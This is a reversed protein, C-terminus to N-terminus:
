YILGLSGTLYLSNDLKGSFTGLEPSKFKLESGLMAGAELNLYVHRGLWVKGGIGSRSDFLRAAVESNSPGIGKIHFKNGSVWAGVYAEYTPSFSYTIQLETPATLNIHLRGETSLLRIGFVPYIDIYRFTQDRRLGLILQAGPNLRYVMLGQGFIEIDSLELSGEFNSYVGLSGDATLLFDDTLFSGIGGRLSGSYLTEKGVSITQGGISKFDLQKSEYGAGSSVFTNASRPVPIDFQAFYDQRDYSGSGSKENQDPTFRYGINLNSYEPSYLRFFSSHRREFLRVEPDKAYLITPFLCSTTLFFAFVAQKRSDFIITSILQRFPMVKNLTFLLKQPM